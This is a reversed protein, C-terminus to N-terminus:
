GQDGTDYVSVINPHNLGAAAQAERRFRTVFQEDGAFQPSLVKVAVTRGLVRDTGRFVRAMGGQGLLTEIEYRGALVRKPREDTM